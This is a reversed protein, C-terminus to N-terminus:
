VAVIADYNTLIYIYIAHIYFLFRRTPKYETAFTRM